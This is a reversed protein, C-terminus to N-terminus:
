TARSRPRLFPAELRTYSVFALGLVGLGTLAILLWEGAAPLAAPRLRVAVLRFTVFLVIGHLLYVSYSMKGLLQAWRSTLLGFGDGGAAVCAFAFFLPLASLDVSREVGNGPIFLIPVALAGLAAVAALPRRAVRAFTPLEVLHAAAMGPFFGVLFYRVFPVAMQAAPSAPDPLPRAVLLAYSAGALLGLLWTRRGRSFWSLLPLLLYFLWELRLTWFVWANIRGTDHVGNVDPMDGFPLTFALWPQLSRVLVRPAVRLAGGSEVAVVALILAVSGLYAPVLRRFRGSFFAGVALRQERRLKRWFLFGTTFFFLLVSERGLYFSFRSPPDTWVGTRWALCSIVAHHFFVSLACLGRLGEIAHLRGRGPDCATLARLRESRTCIGQLILAFAALCLFYPAISTVLGTQLTRQTRPTRLWSKERGRRGTL